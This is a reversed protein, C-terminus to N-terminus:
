DKEIPGHKNEKYLVALTGVVSLVAGVIQLNPEPQQLLLTAVTILVTGGATSGNTKNLVSDTDIFRRGLALIINKM